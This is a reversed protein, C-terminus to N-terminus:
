WKIPGYGHEILYKNAKSFPKSDFFGRSASLPSPHASKLILHKSSDILESKKQAFSGWLIFVLNEMIDSIRKIATDTFIEWGKGHHSGALGARVTLTNNLLLVGQKAWNQLDGNNKPKVGIDTELEKYINILSPPIRDKKQVSFALGDANYGEVKHYPDQGLIIVKVNTVPCLNFARFIDKGAPFIKYEKYEEKLFKTLELFYEQSFQDALLEKWSEEIQIAM